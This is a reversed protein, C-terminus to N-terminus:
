IIRTNNYLVNSNFEKYVKQLAEVLAPVSEVRISFDKDDDWNYLRSIKIQTYRPLAEASVTFNDYYSDPDGDEDVGFSTVCDVAYKVSKVKDISSKVIPKKYVKSKVKKEQKAM